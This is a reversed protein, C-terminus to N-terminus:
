NVKTEAERGKEVLKLASGDTEFVTLSCNDPRFTVLRNDETAWGAAVNIAIFHSFIVTDEKLETLADVVSKRWGLLDVAGNGTNEPLAADDWTGSM